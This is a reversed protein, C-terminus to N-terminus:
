RVPLTALRLRDGNTIDSVIVPLRDGTFLDYLGIMLTYDGPPLDPPVLLGHNDAVTAGATWNITPALDGQPEGDQQAVPPADLGAYLHVFVKYREALAADTQWFLTLQVIDGPAASSPQLSYGLLRIHDGFRAKLTVAPAAAPAAAAYTALRVQGYWTDDFKFAHTNLWNEVIHAPDAQDDGWFLVFLRPHAAAIAELAATTEAPDAPRAHPLPFVEAGGTHYYGFAEVQNPSIVIVADGPQYVSRLHGEIARYDDRFYAPNFYLNNLSTFIGYGLAAVAALWVVAEIGAQLRSRPRAPRARARPSLPATSPIIAAAGQGLLLCVAPVAVLLFKAFPETLLGLGLTLAAPLLLWIFPTITQGRRRLGLVLLLAAGALPLWAQATPTTRGLTLYRWLDALSSWFSGAAHGTPWTTLQRYATPLWPLFLLLTVGQLELWALVRGRRKGSAHAALGGLAALNEALVVFGFSYHTYLGAATVLVYGAALRWDGAPRNPDRSSRLWLSFLLFSAAALTAALAYMRAEQSYYILFPHLAGVLAAAVAAPPDFYVRGLRYLLAVLLLGALASFSRLAFESDGTLARWVKLALYYAPPHIDAAAAELIAPVGRGALALSNGEDNWYSQAGVHCFRLWGALWLCVVLAILLLGRPRM